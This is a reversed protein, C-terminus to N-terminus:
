YNKEIKICNQPCRQLCIECITCEDENEAIVRVKQGDFSFIDVPCAEACMKCGQPCEHEEIRITIFLGM